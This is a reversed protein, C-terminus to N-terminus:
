GEVVIGKKTRWGRKRIHWHINAKTTIGPMEALIEDLSKGLAGSIIEAVIEKDMNPHKDHVGNKRCYNQASALKLGYKEAYKKIGYQRAYSLREEKDFRPPKGSSLRKQRKPYKRPRGRNRKPEAVQATQEAAPKESTQKRVVGGKMHYGRRRLIAYIRHLKVGLFAEAEAATMGETRPVLEDLDRAKHQKAYEALGVRWCWEKASKIRIGYHEAFKVPGNEILYKKREELNYAANHYHRRVSGDKRRTTPDIEREPYGFYRRRLNYFFVLAETRTRCQRLQEKDQDTMAAVAEAMDNDPAIRSQSQGSLFHLAEESKVVNKSRADEVAQRIVAEYLRQWAAAVTTPMLIM